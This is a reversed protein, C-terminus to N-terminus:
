LGAKTLATKLSSKWANSTLTAGSVNAIVASQAQLTESKLVPISIDSYHQASGTPYVAAWAAIIRGDQVRIGVQVAGHEHYKIAGLYDVPGAPTPTPTPTPTPSATTPKPTPTPSTSRPSSATSTPSPKRSSRASPAASRTASGTAAPTAPTSGPAGPVAAKSAASRPAPAATTTAAGSAMGQPPATGPDDATAPPPGGLGSDSAALAPDAPSGSYSLVAVLGAVTGGSV